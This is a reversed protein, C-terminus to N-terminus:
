IVSSTHYAADTKLLKSGPGLSSCLQSATVGPLQVVQDMSQAASCAEKAAQAVEQQKEPQNAVGVGRWVPPAPKPLMSPISIMTPSSRRLMAGFSFGQGTATEAAGEDAM